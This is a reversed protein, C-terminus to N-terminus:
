RAPPVDTYVLEVIEEEDAAHKITIERQIETAIIEVEEDSLSQTATRMQGLNMLIKILEGMPVGLAQSLDKVTVGSEVPPVFPSVEAVNSSMSGVSGSASKSHRIASSGLTSTTTITDDAGPM